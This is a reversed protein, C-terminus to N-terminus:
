QAPFLHYLMLYIIVGTVSVFMWIPLTWRAWQRHRILNGRAAFTITTIVLPVNVAALVTHPLLIGFYLRRAWGTGAFPTSGHQSHYTLYSALFAVSIATAATMLKRHRETDGARIARWGLVLITAAIGNLIANLTPLQEIGM